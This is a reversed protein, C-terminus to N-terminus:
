RFKRLIVCGFMADSDDVAILRMELGDLFSRSERLLAARFIEESESRKDSESLSNELELEDDDKSSLEGIEVVEFGELSSLANLEPSSSGDGFRCLTSPSATELTLFLRPGPLFFLVM